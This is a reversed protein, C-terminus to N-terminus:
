WRASMAVRLEDRLAYLQKLYEDPASGAGQRTQYRTPGVRWRTKPVAGKAKTERAM